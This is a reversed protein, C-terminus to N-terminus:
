FYVFVRMIVTVSSEEQFPTLPETSVTRTSLILRDPSIRLSLNIDLVLESENPPVRVMFVLCEPIEIPYGLIPPEDPLLIRFKRTKKKKFHTFKRTIEVPTTSENQAVRVLLTIEAPIGPPPSDTSSAEPSSEDQPPSTPAQYPNM